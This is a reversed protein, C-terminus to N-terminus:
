IKGKKRRSRKKAYLIYNGYGRFYYFFKKEVCECQFAIPIADKKCFLCWNEEKSVTKDFSKIGGNRDFLYRIIVSNNKVNDFTILLTREKEIRKNLTEKQIERFRLTNEQINKENDEIHYAKFYMEIIKSRTAITNNYFLLDSEDSLSYVHVVPMRKHWSIKRKVISGVWQAIMGIIFILIDGLIPYTNFLQFFKDM